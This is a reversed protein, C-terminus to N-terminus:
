FNMMKIYLNIKLYGSNPYTITTIISFNGKNRLIQYSSDRNFKSPLCSNWKFFFFPYTLLMIISNELNAFKNRKKKLVGHRHNRKFNHYSCPWENL